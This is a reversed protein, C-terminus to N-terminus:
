CLDILTKIGGKVSVRAGKGRRVPKLLPKQFRVLQKALKEKKEKKKRRAKIREPIYTSSRVAITPFYVEREEKM